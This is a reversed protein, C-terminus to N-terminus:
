VNSYGMLDWIDAAETGISRYGHGIRTAGYIHMAQAVNDGSLHFSWKVLQIWSTFQNSFVDIVDIVTCWNSICQYSLWPNM